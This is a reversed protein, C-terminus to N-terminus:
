IWGGCGVRLCCSGACESGGSFLGSNCNLQCFEPNRGKRCSAPNRGRNAPCGGQKQGLRRAWLCGTHILRDPLARNREQITKLPVRLSDMLSVNFHRFSHFGAQKIDLARLTEQM